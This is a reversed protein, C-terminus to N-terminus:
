ILVADARSLRSVNAIFYRGYAVLAHNNKQVIELGMERNLGGATILPQDGWLKRLTELEQFHEDKVDEANKSEAGSARPGVIHLYAFEPYLKKIEGVLHSFQALREPATMLMDQFTGWPSLRAATRRQGIKRVVASIVELM